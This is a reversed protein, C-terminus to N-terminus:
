VRKETSYDVSLRRVMSGVIHVWETDGMSDLEAGYEGNETPFIKLTNKTYFNGTSTQFSKYIFDITHGERKISSTVHTPHSRLELLKREMFDLFYDVEDADLKIPIDVRYPEQFGGTNKDVRWRRLLSPTIVVSNRLAILAGAVVASIALGISAVGWVASVKQNVLLGINFVAM